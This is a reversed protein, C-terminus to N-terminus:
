HEGHKKLESSIRHTAYVELVAAILLLVVWKNYVYQYYAIYDSFASRIFQYATDTMLIGSLIFFIDATTLINKLRSITKNTGEYSQMVQMTAFMVSGVLFTWCAVGQQWQFAFCGAGAVMLVGGIIFVANQATSLRRMGNDNGPESM